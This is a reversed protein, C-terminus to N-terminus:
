KYVQKCATECSAADRANEGFGAGRATAKYDEEDFHTKLNCDTIDREEKLWGVYDATHYNTEQSIRCGMYCHALKDTGMTEAKSKESKYVSYAKILALPNGSGPNQNAWDSRFSNYEHASSFAQQTNPNLEKQYCLPDAAQAASSFCVILGFLMKTMPPSIDFYSTCNWYISM